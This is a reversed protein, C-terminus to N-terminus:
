AVMVGMFRWKGGIFAFILYNDKTIRGPKGEYNDVKVGKRVSQKFEAWSVSALWEDRTEGGASLFDKEAAMLNKFATKNKSNVAATFKTWYANWSTNAASTQALASIPMLLCFALILIRIKKMM